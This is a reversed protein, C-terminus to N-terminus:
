FPIKWGGPVKRQFVGTPDYKRSVKRLAHVNGQGYSEIVPQGKDAYAMYLFERSLGAEKALKEVKREM